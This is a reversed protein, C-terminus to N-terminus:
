LSYIYKRNNAFPIRRTNYLLHWILFWLKALLGLKIASRLANKFSCLMEGPLVHWILDNYVNM